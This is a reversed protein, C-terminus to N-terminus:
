ADTGPIDFVQIKRRKDRREEGELIKNRKGEAM